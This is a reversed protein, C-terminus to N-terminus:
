GSKLPRTFNITVKGGKFDMNVLRWGELKYTTITEIIAESLMKALQENSPKPSGTPLDDANLEVSCFETDQM